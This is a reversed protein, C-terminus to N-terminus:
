PVHLGWRRRRSGVHKLKRRQARTHPHVTLQAQRSTSTRLGAHLLAHEASALKPTLNQACVEATSTELVYRTFARASGVGRQTQRALENHACLRGYTPTTFNSRVVPQTSGFAENPLGLQTMCLRRLNLSKALLNNATSSCAHAVLTCGSTVWRNPVMLMSKWISQM